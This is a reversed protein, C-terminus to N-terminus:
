AKSPTFAITTGGCSGLTKASAIIRKSSSLSKLSFSDFSPNFVAFFNVQSLVVSLTSSSNLFAKFYLLPYHPIYCLYLLNECGTPIMEYSAPYEGLGHTNYFGHFDFYWTPYCDFMLYCALAGLCLHLSVIRLTELWLRVRSRNPSNRYLAPNMTRSM